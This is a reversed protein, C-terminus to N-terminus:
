DKKRRIIVASSLVAVLAPLVAFSSGCGKKGTTTPATTTPAPAADTGADTAEPTSEPETAEPTTAPVTAEPTTAAPSTEPETEAVKGWALGKTVYCNTITSIQNAYYVYFYLGLTDTDFFPIELFPECTDFEVYKDTTVDKVYLTLVNDVGNIELAYDQIVADVNIGLDSFNHYDHGSLSSAVNMLKIKDAYGYVGYKADPYFGIAAKAERTVTWYVTYLSTENLPLGEVPGGWWAQIKDQTNEFTCKGSDAPDVTVKMEGKTKEPKWFDDGNFNATYLIDGDNASTYLDAASATPILLAAFLIAAIMVSLVKKM